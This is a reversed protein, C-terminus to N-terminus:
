QVLVIKTRPAPRQGTHSISMRRRTEPSFVRGVNASRIKEKTEASHKRGVQAASMKARREESVVTGSPGEGGDSLNRLIGTGNDKRGFVAIMYIEHEFAEQETLGQKLVLIRNRDVPPPVARGHRSWIRRAKGKGIYYPSGDQRLFAYTYFGKPVVSISQGLTKTASRRPSRPLKPCCPPLRGELARRPEQLFKTGHVLCCHLIAKRRSHYEEIRIALGIEGLRQDYRSKAALQNSISLDCCRLGHGSGVDGPIALHVEGHALCKHKIRITAGQYPELCTAKGFFAIRAEYEAQTLKRPM